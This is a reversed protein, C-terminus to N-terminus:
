DMRTATFTSAVMQYTFVKIQAQRRYLRIEPPTYVRTYGLIPTEVRLDDVRLVPWRRLTLMATGNGDYLEDRMLRANFSTSAKDAVWAISAELLEGLMVDDVLSLDAGSLQRRLRDTTPRNDRLAM